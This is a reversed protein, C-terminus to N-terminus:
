LPLSTPDPKLSVKQGSAYIRSNDQGKCIRLAKEGDKVVFGSLDKVGFDFLAPAMPTAPGAIVVYAKKALGLFRPLSKDIVASGHIFVYDCDPLIYEAATYPYYDDDPNRSLVSLDCVPQFLQDIYPFHEIVAVKKNRVAKQYSIFPDYVRDETLHSSSVAIKNQKAVDVSNYYANIAAQGLSAEVFNWSKICAALDRLKMGITKNPMTVPLTDESMVSSVGCAEGCRVAAFYVGCVLEDVVLDAPIGDILADYLQWM